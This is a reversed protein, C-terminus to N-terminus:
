RCGLKYNKIRVMKSIPIKHQINTMPERTTNIQAKKACQKEIENM